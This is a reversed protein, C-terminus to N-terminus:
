FFLLEMSKIVVPSTMKFHLNARGQTRRPAIGTFLNTTLMLGRQTEPLFHLALFQRRIPYLMKYIM